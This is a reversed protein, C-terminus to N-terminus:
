DNLVGKDGQNIIHIRKCGKCVREWIYHGRVCVRSCRTRKRSNKSYSQCSYSQCICVQYVLNGVAQKGDARGKHAKNNNYGSSYNMFSKNHLITIDESFLKFGNLLSMLFLYRTGSFVLFRNSFLIGM